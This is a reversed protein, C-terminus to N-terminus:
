GDRRGATIQMIPENNLMAPSDPRRTSQSGHRDMFYLRNPLTPTISSVSISTASPSPTQALAYYFPIDERNYYGLTLPM